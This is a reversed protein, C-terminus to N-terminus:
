VDAAFVGGYSPLLDDHKEPHVSGDREEGHEEVRTHYGCSIHCIRYIIRKRKNEQGKRQFVSRKEMFHNAAAYVPKTAAVYQQRSMLPKTPKWNASSPVGRERHTREGKSGEFFFFVLKEVLEEAYGAEDDKAGGEEDGNGGKFL